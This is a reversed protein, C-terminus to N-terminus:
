CKGGAYAPWGSRRILLCRGDKVSTHEEQIRNHLQVFYNWLNFFFNGHVKLNKIPGMCSASNRARNYVRDKGWKLEKSLLLAALSPCDSQRAVSIASTVSYSPFCCLCSKLIQIEMNNQLYQDGSDRSWIGWKNSDEVCVWSFYIVLSTHLLSLSQMVVKLDAAPDWLLQVWKLFFNAIKEGSHM